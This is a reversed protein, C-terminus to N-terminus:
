ICPFYQNLELATTDMQYIKSLAAAEFCWYGYYVNNKNDLTGYWSADECNEYWNEIYNLLAEEKQKTNESDFVTNLQAYLREVIYGSAIPYRNSTIENALVCLLKDSRVEKDNEEIFGLVKEKDEIMVAFSLIRVIETYSPKHSYKIVRHYAEKLAEVDAGGSFEAMFINMLITSIYLDIKDTNDLTERMKMFKNLREKEISLYEEFYTESKRKDRM